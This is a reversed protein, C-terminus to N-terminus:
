TRESAEMERQIHRPMYGTSRRIANWRRWRERKDRTQATSMRPFGVLLKSTGDTSGDQFIRQSVRAIVAPTMGSCGMTEKWFDPRPDTLWALADARLAERHAERLALTADTVVSQGAADRLARLLVARALHHCAVELRDDDLSLRAGQDRM